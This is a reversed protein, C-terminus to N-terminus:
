RVVTLRRTTRFREGEVHVFYTGSALDRGTVRLRLPEGPRAPGDHLTAIRQGLVNFLHAKVAQADRVELTLSAGQRSPNPTPDSLIYAAGSRVEVIVVESLSETGDLDVQRLRVRHRGPAAEAIRFRYRTAEAATGAGSVFGAAAFGSAGPAHHDVHFGANGTESATTWHLLLGGADQVAGFQALEVPIPDGRLNEYLTTTSAAGNRDSGTIVLDLTGDGDLDGVSSASFEVGLLGARADAFGGNGDGFYIKATRTGNSDEGTIVLDPVGDGDVDGVSSSGESVGTLGAGAESFGGSGDGLYVTATPTDDADLGTVVLDLTSDGNLDSVASASNLVGSLGAGADTFSGTGDGLYLTATPNIADDQGTIVLDLNGDGNVDGTSSSSIAVGRLGAGAETFGGTGDGLYLTTILDVNRNAGTLVLDLNGDNNFDGTATSGLDVDELGANAQTFGGAGDGLYLSTTVDRNRDEGTIVLDPAGDGNFDGVSSSSFTVGTLGAGASTFGGDGDGLYVTASPVDDEGGSGTLLLDLTGDGDVDKVSSSGFSVPALGAEVAAVDDGVDVRFSVVDTGGRGDSAQLSTSLAQGAQSLLPTVTVEAIGNGADTISVGPPPSQLSLSLRDGNRDGAEYLRSLPQGPAIVEQTASALVWEPPKNPSNQVTRNVYLRVLDADFAADRGTVVLDLDGDGDFDAISSAGQTAGTLGADAVTFGGTGDGLYVTAAADGTADSGTVVLDPTGDGDVDGLASAGLEVGGLGAGAKAFGGAGDGLCVTTTPSSAPGSGTLVLDVNGDGDLDGVSSSSGTVGDLTAGSATFGGTGDGLYVTSTVVFRANFGTLVLDLTGDGNFDAVSSSGGLVGELSAGANTFGGTGDGLYVTANLTGDPDEGTLVLDPNGDGNLDAASSAGEDVGTLGAEADTFGGTGDGLYVAARSVSTVDDRGTLVLDLDGDRNFDAVSSSSADIEIPATRAAVLKDTEDGLYVSVTATGDSDRGTIILDSMGDSNVDGVSSTSNDVNTLGAGARTFLVASTPTLM